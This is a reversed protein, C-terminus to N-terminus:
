FYGTKKLIACLYEKKAERMVNRSEGTWYIDFYMGFVHCMLKLKKLFSYTGRSEYIM